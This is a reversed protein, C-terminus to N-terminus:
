PGCDQNTRTVTSGFRLQYEASTLFACVMAKHNGPVKNNLINLWFDYGGQDADRRLYGFYQMLVFSPNYERIKFEQIEIVDRLVQARTKSNNTLATIAAQRETAYPTLQATDYLKNVFETPSMADSYLQKFSSRQVWSDAFAQKTAELQSGAIIQSRDSTFEAYTPQRGLSGKYMRYVFSGTEQFELEVFFAASVDVRNQLTCQADSAGCGQNIRESWYNLGGQDPERSLFDLYHQRIYVRPNDIANSYPVCAQMARGVNLRGGTITNVLEPVPDVSTLIVGKLSTTNLSCRSLLLMAAGAVHPTSMSTGSFYAYSNNRVTSYVNEGPAGLHVTNRGYNSFSALNDRNNTAAVGIINPVSYGSPTRPIADNDTSNNGALAVFLMDNDSARQIEDQVSPTYNDAFWSNNLVRVNAGGSSTFFRKTQIAFEIANMANSIFGRNNADLFKVAMISVTWNVGAVGQGNNGLAGITGSVHTGHNHDDLPDCTNNIANYGHTGAGCTITRGAFSVTFSTPASWVNAALDPHNYDIGSDVVAVVNSRSGTSYDWAVSAGIDAGSTGSAGLISQGTNRLGWLQAFQTDNPLAGGYVVYNPEAYLVDPRARLVSLLEGAGKSRSQILRTGAGGVEINFDADLNSEIQLLTAATMKRARFKVLVQNAAVEQGSLFETRTLADAGQGSVKITVCFVLILLTITTRFM